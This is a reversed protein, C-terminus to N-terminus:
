PLDYYITTADPWCGAGWNGADSEAGAFLGPCWLQVRNSGRVTDYASVGRMDIWPGFSTRQEVVLVACAWDKPRCACSVNKRKFSAGKQSVQEGSVVLTLPRGEKATTIQFQLSADDPGSADNGAAPGHDVELAVGWRRTPHGM